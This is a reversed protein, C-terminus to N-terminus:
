KNLFLHNFGCAVASIHSHGSVTTTFQVNRESSMPKGAAQLVNITRWRNSMATKKHLVQGENDWREGM